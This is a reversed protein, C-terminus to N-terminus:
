RGKIRRLAGVAIRRIPFLLWWIKVYCKYGSSACSVYTDKRYFGSMVGLIDECKIGNEFTYTNDGCIVYNSKKVEIIRHLVLKGGSTRYLVVDYKKPPVDPCNLVVQCKDGRLLPLMSSGVPAILIQKQERIYDGIDGNYLFEPKRLNRLSHMCM